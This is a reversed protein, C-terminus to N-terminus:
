PKRGIGCYTLLDETLTLDEPGPRWRNLPVLGPEVMELGDYFRAIM